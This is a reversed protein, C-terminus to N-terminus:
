APKAQSGAALQSGLVEGLVHGQVCVGPAVALGSAPCGQEEFPRPLQFTKGRPLSLQSVALTAEALPSEPFDTKIEATPSYKTPDHHQGSAKKFIM